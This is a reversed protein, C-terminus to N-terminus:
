WNFENFHWEGVTSHYSWDSGKCVQGCQITLSFSGNAAHYSSGTREAWPSVAVGAEALTDPYRGRAAHFAVVAGLLRDKEQEVLDTPAGLVFVYEFPPDARWRSVPIALTVAVSQSRRGLITNPDSRVVGPRINEALHQDLM